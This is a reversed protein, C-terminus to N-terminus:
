SKKSNIPWITSWIHSIKDKNIRNAYWQFGRNEHDLLMQGYPTSTVKRFIKNKTIYSVKIDNGQSDERILKIKSIGFFNLLNNFLKKVVKQM